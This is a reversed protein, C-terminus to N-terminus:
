LAVETLEEEAAAPGGPAAVAWPAGGPGQSIGGDSYGIGASGHAASQAGVGAQQQPQQQPASWHSVAEMAPPALPPQQHEHAHVDCAPVSYMSGAAVAANGFGHAPASPSSHYTSGGGLQAGSPPGSSSYAMTDGIWPV